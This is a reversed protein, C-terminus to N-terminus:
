LVLEISIMLLTSFFPDIMKGVSDRKFFSVFSNFEFGFLEFLWLLLLLLLLLRVVMMWQPVARNRTVRIGSLMHRDLVDEVSLFFIVDMAGDM